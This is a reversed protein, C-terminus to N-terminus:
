FSHSFPLSPQRNAKGTPENLQEMIIYCVKM